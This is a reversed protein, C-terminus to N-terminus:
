VAPKDNRAQEADDLYDKAKDVGQDVQDDHGFKGKVFDGAKDLGEEVKDKQDVLKDKIEDFNM